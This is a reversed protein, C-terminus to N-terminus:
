KGGQSPEVGLASKAKAVVNRAYVTDTYGSEIIAILERLMADPEAVRARLRSIEADREAIMLTAARLRKEADDILEHGQSAGRDYRYAYGFPLCAAELEAIRRAIAELDGPTVFDAMEWGVKRREAAMLMLNDPSLDRMM